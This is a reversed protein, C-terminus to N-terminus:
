TFPALTAPKMFTAFAMMACPMTYRMEINPSADRSQGKLLYPPLAMGGIKSISLKSIPQLLSAVVVINRDICDM